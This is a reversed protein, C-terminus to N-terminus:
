DKAQRSAHVDTNMAAVTRGARNTVPVSLARLGLELQEDVVSYGQRRVRQIEAALRKRQVITRPTLPKLKVRALYAQLEINSECLRFTVRCVFHTELPFLIM